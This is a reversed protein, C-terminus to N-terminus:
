VEDLCVVIKLPQAKSAFAKMKELVGKSVDHQLHACLQVAAEHRRARYAEEVEKYKNKDQTEEYEKSLEFYREQVKQLPKTDKIGNFILALDAKRTYTSCALEVTKGSGSSTFYMIVESNKRWPQAPSVYFVPPCADGDGMHRFKVSKNAALFYCTGDKKGSDSRIVDVGYIVGPRDPDYDEPKSAEGELFDKVSTYRKPHKAGNKEEGGTLPHKRPSEVSEPM